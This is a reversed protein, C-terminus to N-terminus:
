LFSFEDGHEATLQERIVALARDPDDPLPAASDAGFAAIILAEHERSVMDEFVDPFVIHLLGQRQTYAATQPIAEVWEKFAWPDALLATRGGPDLEKWERVTDILFWLQNPRYTKFAV